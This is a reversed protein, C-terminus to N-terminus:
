AAHKALPPASVASPAHRLRQHLVAEPKANWDGEDLPALRDELEWTDDLVHRAARCVAYRAPWRRGGRAGAQPLEGRSGARARAM